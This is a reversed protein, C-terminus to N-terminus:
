SGPTIAPVLGSASHATFDEIERGLAIATRAGRLETSRTLYSRLSSLRSTIGEIRQPPQLDFVPRLTDEAADLSGQLLYGHALDIHAETIVKPMRAAEPLAAYLELATQAEHIAPDADGLLIYASGLCRALRAHDFSFEGGIQDHILDRPTSEAQERALRAAQAAGEHDGVHAFARAQIGRLRRVPTGQPALALGKNILDLAEYARESWYCILARMGLAWACLGAHGIMRGYVFASRAQDAAADTYGLDFASTALIGCAQGAALYLDAEQSPRGTRDLLEYATDRVRKAESFSTYAPTMPFRRAIRAIEEQLGEISTDDVARAANAAHESSEHGSMTIESELDHLDLGPSATTFTSAPTAPVAEVPGFLQEVRRGFMHELIRASMQLPYTAVDGRLWREYQTRSVSQMAIQPEEHKALERAAGEFHHKFTEYTRWRREKVLQRLLNTPADRAM